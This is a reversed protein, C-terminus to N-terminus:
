DKLKRVLFTFIKWAALPVFTPFLQDQVFLRTPKTLKLAYQFGFSPDFLVYFFFVADCSSAPFPRSCCQGLRLLSYSLKFVRTILFERVRVSSSHSIIAIMEGNESRAGLPSMLRQRLWSLALVSNRIHESKEWKRWRHSTYLIM